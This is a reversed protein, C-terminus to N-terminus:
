RVIAPIKVRARLEQNVEIAKVSKVNRVDQPDWLFELITREEPFGTEPDFDEFHINPCSVNSSLSLAYIGAAWRQFWIRNPFFTHWPVSLRLEEGTLEQHDWGQGIIFPRLTKLLDHKHKGM